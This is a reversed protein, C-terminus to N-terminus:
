TPSAFVEDMTGTGNVSAYKARRLTTSRWWPRRCATFTWGDRIVEESADDARGSDQRAAPYPAGAGGGPCPHGGYYGSEFRTRGSNQRVGRGPGDYPSGTSSLGRADKHEAVYNGIVGIVIEDPALKGRQHVTGHQTRLGHRAPDRRPDGRRDFCPRNRLAREPAPGPHGQRMGSRRILRINIM